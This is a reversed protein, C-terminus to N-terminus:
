SDARILACLDCSKWDACEVRSIQLGGSFSFVSIDERDETSVTWGGLPPEPITFPLYGVLATVVAFCFGAAVLPMRAVLWIVMTASLAGGGLVGVQTWAAAKSQDTSTLMRVMLGGCAAMVFFSVMGGALILATRLILHFAGVLPFYICAAIATGFTGVALWTRRRLYRFPSCVIQARLCFLPELSDQAIPRRSPVLARTSSHEVEPSGTVRGCHPNRRTRNALPTTVARISIAPFM